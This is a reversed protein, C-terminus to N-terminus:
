RKLINWYPVVTTFALSASQAIKKPRHIEPTDIWM